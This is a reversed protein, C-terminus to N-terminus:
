DNLAVRPDFRTIWHSAVANPDKPKTSTSNWNDLGKELICQEVEKAPRWDQGLEDALCKTQLFVLLAGKRIKDLIPLCNVKDVQERVIQSNKEIIEELENDLITTEKGDIVKIAAYEQLTMESSEDHHMEWDLTIKGNGYILYYKLMDPLEPAEPWVEKVWDFKYERVILQREEGLEYPGHIEMFNTYYTDYGFAWALASASVVAKKIAQKNSSQWKTSNEIEEAQSKSLLKNSGKLCFPDEKAKIKLLNLFNQTGESIEEISPKKSKQELIKLGIVFEGTLIYRIQTTSWFLDAIEPDTKAKKAEKLQRLQNLAALTIFTNSIQRGKAPWNSGGPKSYAIKVSELYDDIDNM